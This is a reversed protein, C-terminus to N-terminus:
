QVLVETVVVRLVEGDPFVERAADTLRNRLTDLAERGVLDVATYGSLVELVADKLVPMREGVASSNGGEPLVVGFKIRAYRVPDDALTITMQDAEIVAGEAPVTTTTPATPDAEAEGGGGFLFFWAAALLVVGGGIIAILKGKGGREVEAAAIEETM